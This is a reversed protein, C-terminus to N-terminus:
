PEVSNESKTLLIKQLLEQVDKGAEIAKKVTSLIGRRNEFQFDPDIELIMDKAQQLLARKPARAERTVM